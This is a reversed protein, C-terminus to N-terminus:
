SRHIRTVGKTQKHKKGPNNRLELTVPAQGTVVSKIIRAFTLVVVVVVVSNPITCHLALVPVVTTHRTGTAGLSKVPAIRDIPVILGTSNSVGVTDTSSSITPPTKRVNVRMILDTTM